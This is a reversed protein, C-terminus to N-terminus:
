EAHYGFGRWVKGRGRERVEAGMVKSELMGKYLILYSKEKRGDSGKTCKNCETASVLYKHMKM